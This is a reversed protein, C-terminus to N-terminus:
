VGEHDLQLACAFESYGCDVCGRELKYNALWARVLKRQNRGCQLHLDYLKPDAKAKAYTARREGNNYPRKVKLKNRCAKSCYLANYGMPKPQFLTECAKCERMAPLSSSAIEM